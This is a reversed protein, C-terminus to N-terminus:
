PKRLGTLLHFALWALFSWFIMRIYWPQYVLFERVHNSFTAGEAKGFIAWAEIVGFLVLWLLWAATFHGRETMLGEFM